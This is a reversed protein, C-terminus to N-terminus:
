ELVTLTFEACGALENMFRAFASASGSITDGSDAQVLWDGLLVCGRSDANYNGRHFLIGTHGPVDLVEFTEFPTGHALRHTGRECRYTGSPLAAKQDFSHELTEAIATRDERYLAGFIGDSRFLERELTLMM